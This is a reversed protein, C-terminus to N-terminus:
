KLVVQQIRPYYKHYLENVVEIESGSAVSSFYHENQIWQRELAPFDPLVVETGNELASINADFFASWRDYYYTRLLGNWERNSYDHLDTDETSWTTILRKANKVFLAKEAVNTGKNRAQGMWDGLLFERRTGLLRDQDLILSLFESAYKKYSSIDSRQKAQVINGHLARAYDSLIQRTVDVLDYRYTDKGGFQSQAEIFTSWVGIIDGIKYQPIASGWTSAKEIQDSPRACMFSEIPGGTQKTCEYVSKSLDIWAKHLKDNQQGYRYEVYYKLWEDITSPNGSWAMDYVMDYVVPNNFSGEPATGIGIIGKGNPHQQAKVAADIYSSMKGYMGTKGGFNPLACWIWDHDLHGFSKYFLSSKDKSWQPSECAMLDLIIADGKKLGRLMDETPNHQWGQLVWKASPNNQKIQKAIKAAVLPIDFGDTLGGEHFPDGGFFDAKGFLKEQEEYYIASIKDFLPDMPDLFAPRQYEFWKGQTLIRAEPHKEKLSNPVMGFFGQYVPKMGYEKMRALIKKQLEEQEKIFEMSVPGGSGELNGMLWWAEFGPGSLFELIENQNYGLRSLTNYWVPYQSLVAQLPMNIGQLAMWDIEKEWEDWGWFPMTYSYTCYNLYYRYSFRSSQTVKSEPLPYASQDINDSCWSVSNHKVKRLYYNLGRSMALLSNAEIKVKGKEPQVSFYEASKRQRKLDFEFYSANEGFIRAALEEVPKTDEGHKAKSAASVPVGALMVFASVLFMKRIKM